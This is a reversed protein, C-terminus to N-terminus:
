LIESASASGKNILVVVPKEQNLSLKGAKITEKHGDRDVISVIPANEIFMNAILIANPLLGGTNGRLDLIIGKADATEILAKKVEDTTEQSIFSTIQIYAYKNNLMKYNVSKINIEERTIPISLKKKNRLVTLNVTSGANGRVLDAVKRLSFGKINIGNVQTIIDGNKLRVKQAPTDEIVHVIVIDEKIKAINVGIGFLKADISMNQEKFEKPNLFRTYPDDLSEAMSNIALYADDNTKIKGLYRKKWRSWDQDNQTKDFHQEKIVNWAELFVKQSPSSCCNISCLIEAIPTYCCGGFILMIFISYITILSNKINQKM